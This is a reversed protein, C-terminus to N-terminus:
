NISAHLGSSSCYRVGTIGAAYGNLGTLTTSDHGNHDMIKYAETPLCAGNGPEVLNYALGDAPDMPAAGLYPNGAGGFTAISILGASPYQGNHDVAYEELATALQKENGECASSISEARAHIFNPILIGALIAIISIVIMLEILTFARSSRVM